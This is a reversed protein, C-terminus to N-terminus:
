CSHHFDNKSPVATNETKVDCDVSSLASQLSLMTLVFDNM